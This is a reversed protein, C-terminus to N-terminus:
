SSTGLVSGAPEVINFSLLVAALAAGSLFGGFHGMYASPLYGTMGATLNLLFWVLILWPGSRGFSGYCLVVYMGLIGMVAGSAGIAPRGDFIIHVVASVIGTFLYALPYNANGIQLCVYRGFIWLAVLNSVIHIINVHLWMYCFIATLSWRDLVLNNLYQRDSDFLFQLAFTIVLTLMILYNGIPVDPMSINKSLRLNM